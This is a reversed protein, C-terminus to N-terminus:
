TIEGPLMGVVWGQSNSDEDRVTVNLLSFVHEFQAEPRPPPTCAIFLTIIVFIAYLVLYQCRLAQSDSFFLELALIM